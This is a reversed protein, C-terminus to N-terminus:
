KRKRRLGILGILGTGMAAMSGPEPVCITNVWVEEVNTEFLIPISIQESRPNPRLEILYQYTYWNGGEGIIGIPGALGGTSGAATATPIAAPSKDSTIQIFIRKLPNEIPTNPCDIIIEGGNPFYWTTIGTGGPWIVTGPIGGQANLTPNGYPNNSIAPNYLDHPFEWAQTTTGPGYRDWLPQGQWSDWRDIAQAGSAMCALLLAVIVLRCINTKM